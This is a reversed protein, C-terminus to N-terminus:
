DNRSVEYQILADYVRTDIQSKYQEAVQKILAEKYAKYVLFAEQETDFYGLHKHKDDSNCCQAVFVCDRNHWYVGITQGGRTSSSKILLKNIRQPVFVCVDESYVKNGRVLIDKDLHWVKRAGFEDETKFGKQQQCWEYFFSYNKFNESCTTGIYTPHKEWYNGKCRDLMNGWLIYEKVNKRDRYAPYEGSNIGIGRVLSASRM